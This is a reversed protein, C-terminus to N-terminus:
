LRDDRARLLSVRFPHVEPRILGGLVAPDNAALAQAQVDDEAEFVAIGFGGEVLMPGAIILQGDALLRKLYQFHEGMLASEEDTADHIFTPRPPHVFYVFQPM